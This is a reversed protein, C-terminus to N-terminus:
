KSIFSLYWVLHLFAISNFQYRLVTFLHSIVGRHLRFLLRKQLTKWVNQLMKQKKATHFNPHPCFTPSPFPLPPFSISRCSLLKQNTCRPIRSILLWWYFCCRAIRTQHLDLEVFHLTGLECTPDVMRQIVQIDVHNLHAKCPTKCFEGMKKEKQIAKREPPPLARQFLASLNECETLSVLLPPSFHNADLKQLVM